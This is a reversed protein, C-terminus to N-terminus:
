GEGVRAFRSLGQKALFREIEVLLALPTENMPYYGTNKLVEVSARRYRRLYTQGQGQKAFGM